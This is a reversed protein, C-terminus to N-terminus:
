QKGLYIILGENLIGGSRDFFGSSKGPDEVKNINQYERGGGKRTGERLKRSCGWVERVPFNKLAAVKRDRTLSTEEARLGARSSIPTTGPRQGQPGSPKEM